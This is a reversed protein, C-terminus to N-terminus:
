EEPTEPQEPAEESEAEPAEESEGPEEEPEEPTEESEAEPAEEPEDSYVDIDKNDKTVVTLRETKGGKKKRRVNWLVLGTVAFAAACVVVAIGLSILLWAWWALGESETVTETYHNLGSTKWYEAIGSEDAASWKGLRTVFYSLTRYSAVINGNDDKKTFSDKEFLVKEKSNKQLTYGEGKTFAAFADKEEQTYLTEDKDEAEKNNEDFQATEGTYFYYRIANSLDSDGFADNLKAFLGVSKDSNNVISDYDDDFKKLEANNMLTGSSNKLSVCSLYSYASGGFTEADAYFVIDDIVEYNYWGSVHQVNLVKAPRYAAKDKEGEYTLNKYNEPDGNYVAREVSLGSSNTRTFYVYDYGDNRSDDLADPALSIITASGIDYAVEVEAAVTGGEGVDVRFMSSNSVYLYHHSLEAGTGETYFYASGTAKSTADIANAIKTLKSNEGTENATISDWGSATVSSEALYYLDGGVGSTQKRTFYLGGDKYSSLSYTFGIPSCPESDSHNFENKKDNRGVGDLVIEGLNTYPAKNDHEKLYDKDWEYGYPDTTAEASVRYVQNYLLQQAGDSDINDTVNMTFYVVPNEKNTSDFVYSTANEFLVTDKKNQTNLSHVTFTSSGEAYLLYVGGDGGKVFRYVTTNSSLRFLHQVDSGDLAASKFDLYSNEVVGDTNRVNTPTAYYVRGDYIFIGATYDGAVMLSPVITETKNEKLESKKVRMLAGKVPSGYTNDSTYTEVGNIFYYYGDDGGVSVVFGGNSSVPGEPIGSPTTFSTNCASLSVAGLTMFAAATVALLKKVSKRM